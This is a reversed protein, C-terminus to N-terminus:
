LWGPLDPTKTGCEPCFQDGPLITTAHCHDCVCSTQHFMQHIRHSRYGGGNEMPADSGAIVTNYTADTDVKLSWGYRRNIYDVTAAYAPRSCERQTMVYKVQAINSHVNDYEYMDTMGDFTGEEHYSVLREVQDTTPGDAWSVSVDDGMSFSRSRVKFTVGPFTKKLKARIAKAAAAHDSLPRTKTPM